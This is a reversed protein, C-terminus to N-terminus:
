QNKIIDEINIPTYSTKEVCVNKHFKSPSTKQHIHGHANYEVARFSDPHLPVHSLILNFEKFIRWLSIKQFHKLLVTDKGKDHNGLVLRKRGNLRSLTRDASQQSGFYVDGLHYVTDEPSVTNNWNNIMIENMETVDKFKRVPDGKEDTFKLMNAHGFHTDSVVFIERM